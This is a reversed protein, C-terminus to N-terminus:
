IGLLEACLSLSLQGGWARCGLILGHCLQGSGVFLISVQAHIVDGRLPPEGVGTPFYQDIGVPGTPLGVVAIISLWLVTHFDIRLALPIVYGATLLAEHDALKSSRGGGGAGPFPAIGLATLQWCGLLFTVTQQERSGWQAVPYPWM